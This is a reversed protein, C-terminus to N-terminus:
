DAAFVRIESRHGGRFREPPLVAVYFLEGDTTVAGHALRCGKLKRTVRASTRINTAVLEADLKHLCGVALAGGDAFGYVVDALAAPAREGQTDLFNLANSPVHLFRGDPTFRMDRRWVTVGAHALAPGPVLQFVQM